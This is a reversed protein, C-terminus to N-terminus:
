AINVPIGQQVESAVEYVYNIDFEFNNALPVIKLDPTFLLCKLTVGNGCFSWHLLYTYSCGQLM